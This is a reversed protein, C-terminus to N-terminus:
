ADSTEESELRLLPQDPAGLATLGARAITANIYGHVEAKAAEVTTEMHEGFSEAVFGLNLSLQQEASNLKSRVQDAKGKPIGLTDLLKRAENISKLADDLREIHEGAFQKKRDVPPLYPMQGEKGIFDITCPTGAGMNMASVFHAWQAESLDVEILTKRPHYWDRSLNRNLQSTSIAIRIFGNHEFDSGYLRRVGSIRHAGIQGFAPHTFAEGHDDRPLKVPEEIPRDAM